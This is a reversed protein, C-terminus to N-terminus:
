LTFLMSRKIKIYVKRGVDIRFARSDGADDNNVKNEGLFMRYQFIYATTCFADLFGCVSKM